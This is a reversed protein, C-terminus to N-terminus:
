VLEWQINCLGSAKDDATQIVFPAWPAKIM